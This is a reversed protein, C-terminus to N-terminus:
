IDAEEGECEMHRLMPLIHFCSHGELTSRYSSLIAITLNLNDLYNNELIIESRTTWYSGQKNWAIHQVDESSQSRASLPTPVNTNIDWIHIKGETADTALQNDERFPNFDMARVPGGYMHPSSILCNSDRALLKTVSYIKITGDECGGVIIGAPNNGYSGWIIKHFRYSVFIDLQDSFISSYIM